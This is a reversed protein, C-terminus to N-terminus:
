EFNYTRPTVDGAGWEPLTPDTRFVPSSPMAAAFEHRPMDEVDVGGVLVGSSLGSQGESDFGSGWTDEREDNEVTVEREDSDDDSWHVNGTESDEGTLDVVVQASVASAM